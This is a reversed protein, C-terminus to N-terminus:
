IGLMRSMPDNAIIAVADMQSVFRDESLARRSSFDVSRIGKMHAVIAIRNGKGLDNYKEFAQLVHSYTMDFGQDYSLRFILPAIEHLDM